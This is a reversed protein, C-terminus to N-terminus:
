KKNAKKVLTTVYGAIVNRLKKSNIIAVEDVSKKNNQFDLNFKDKYKSHIKESISKVFTTRVRGM